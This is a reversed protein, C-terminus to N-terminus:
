LRPMARSRLEATTSPGSAQSDQGAGSGLGASGRHRPGGKYSLGQRPSPAEQGLEKAVANLAEALWKLYSMGPSVLNHGLRTRRQGCPWSEADKSHQVHGPEQKWLKWLLWVAYIHGHEM